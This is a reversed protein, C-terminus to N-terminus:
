VRNSKKKPVGESHFIHSVEANQKAEEIEKKKMEYVVQFLDRLALVTAEAAKATKIGFFQHKGSGIGLVYGFARRDTQDRAIFSIKDVSHQYLVTQFSLVM